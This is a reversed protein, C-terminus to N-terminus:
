RLPREEWAEAQARFDPRLSLHNAPLGATVLAKEMVRLEKESAIPESCQARKRWGDSVPRVRYRPKAVLKNWVQASPYCRELAALAITLGDQVDRRSVHQTM